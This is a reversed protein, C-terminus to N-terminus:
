IGMASLRDAIQSLSLTLDPHRAEFEEIASKLKEVVSMSTGQASATSPEENGQSELAAQIEGLLLKLSRITDADLEPRASLEEHLKSLTQSLDETTM